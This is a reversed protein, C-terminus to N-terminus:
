STFEFTTNKHITEEIFVEVFLIVVIMMMMMTMM